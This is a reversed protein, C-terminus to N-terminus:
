KIIMYVNIVGMVFHFPIKIVNPLMIQDNRDTHVGIDKANSVSGM